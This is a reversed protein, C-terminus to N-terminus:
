KRTTGVERLGSSDEGEADEGRPEEGALHQGAPGGPPLPPQQERRENAEEMPDGGDAVIERWCNLCMPDRDAFPAKVPRSCIVCTTMTTTMTPNRLHAGM